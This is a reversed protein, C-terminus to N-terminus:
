KGEKAADIMARWAASERACQNRIQADITMGSLSSVLVKRAARNGEDLMTLSPERMADIVADVLQFIWGEQELTLSDWETQHDIATALALAIRERMPTETTM